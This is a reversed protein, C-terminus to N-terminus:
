VITMAEAFAPVSAIWGGGLVANDDYLVVAQGPAIAPQPEDFTVTIAEDHVASIVADAKPARSRIKAQVRWGVDPREIAIWNLDRAVLSRQELEERTGVILRNQEVDMGIVYLRQASAVGLGERQGITFGLLGAHAGLVDGRTNVIPGPVAHQPLRRRLFGNKDGDRIFCIEQSDPKDATVFGWARAIARVQSKEYEGLPFIARALQSQTLGFLVYSQDKTLDRGQRLVYRRRVEDFGVRAYHGTAVANADLALAQKMLSGFKIHDNCATCPNPTLGQAYTDVFYDIVHTAFAEQLNLVYFPIGLTAAVSRADDADRLSCCSKAPVDTGCLEKPWLQMTVGIVEYGQQVLLAAAVSSDVGGSMAVVVRTHTM